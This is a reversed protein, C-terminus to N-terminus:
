VFRDLLELTSDSPSVSPRVCVSIALWYVNVEHVDHLCHVINVFETPEEFYVCCKEM